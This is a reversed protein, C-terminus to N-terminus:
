IVTGDPIIANKPVIVLGDRAVWTETESDPRGHLARIQVNRGIRANKDILAGDVTSGQGIGIDPRSHRKNEAREADTEYYDAGMIVSSRITVNPGIRSRLGIVSSSLDSDCITCGDALMVQDLRSKRVESPPLFRPLTYLPWRPGFLEVPRNPSALELNVEYFRRITGIDAWYRDFVYGMVRHNPLAGPIIDKGFDDGPAQLLERLLETSFVYIGMSALYPKNSGPLSELGALEEPKPKEAFRVIEGKPSRKL